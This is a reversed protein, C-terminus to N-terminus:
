QVRGEQGTVIFAINRRSPNNPDWYDSHAEVPNFSGPDSTFQRGGFGPNAPNEGFRMNDDVGTLQIVDNAATSAWVDGADGQIYLDSASDVGVGPSGVFILGNVALGKEHAAIGVTTTGYSHGIMTNRSPPGDHTVRLGDQFRSLDGAAREAYGASAANHFFDPADYGLWTIAATKRGSPDLRNADDAMVDARDIDGAISPLDAMTGPVYTVVNDAEDPNGVAVIARGDDASSYGLLFAPPKGPDALRDRVALPGALQKELPERERDIRDLEALVSGAPNASDPYIEGLRGQAAMARLFEERRNLEDRRQIEDTLGALDRDLVIRNATDRDTAPVGDLAGILEPFNQLAEEQQQPTLTEWWERIERPQRARQDEVDARSVTRMQLQGFGNAGSPLNVNLVNATSDDQARARELVAELDAMIGAMARATHDLQGGTYASAPATIRGAAADITFGAQQASAVIEEAQRRLAGVAYAHEELADYIRRAPNYTNSVEARLGAARTAAEESGAGASWAYPLDRTARILQEATDDIQGALQKWAAAAQHWPTDYAKLLQELTM